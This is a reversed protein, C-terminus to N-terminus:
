KKRMRQQKYFWRLGDLKKSPHIISIESLNNLEGWEVEPRFRMPYKRYGTGSWHNFGENWKALQKLEGGFHLVLSPYLCEGFDYVKQGDCDPFYGKEFGNTKELFKDFFNISKLLRLFKGSYFVCCGLFYRCNIIENGVIHELYPFKHNFMRLDNGLCWVNEQDAQILDKKFSESTFLVDPECYCYWDHDPYKDLVTKLGLTLNRYPARYFNHYFGEFKYIPLEVNKGWNEWTASDVIMMCDKSAYTQISEITDQVLETNAHANIITAMQM